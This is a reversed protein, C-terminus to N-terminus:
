SNQKHSLPTSSAQQTMSTEQPKNQPYFLTLEREITQKAQYLTSILAPTTNFQEPALAVRKKSFTKEDVYILNREDGNGPALYFKNSGAHTTIELTIFQGDATLDIKIDTSLHISRLINLILNNAHVGIKKPTPETKTDYTPNNYGLLYLNDKNDAYLQRPKTKLYYFESFTTYAFDKAKQIEKLQSHLSLKRLTVPEIKIFTSLASPRLSTMMIMESEPLPTVKNPQAAEQGLRIGGLLWAIIPLILSGTGALVGYTLSNTKIRTEKGARYAGYVIAVPPTIIMSVFGVVTGKLINKTSLNNKPRATTQKIANLKQESVQVKHEARSKNKEALIREKIAANPTVDSTGILANKEQAQAEALEIEVTKKARLHMALSKQAEELTLDNIVAAIMKETEVESNQTDIQTKIENTQLLDIYTQITLKYHHNIKNLEATLQQQTQNKLTSEANNHLKELERNLQAMKEQFALPLKKLHQNWIDDSASKFDLTPSIESKLLLEINSTKIAILTKSERYERYLNSIMIRSSEQLHTKLHGKELPIDNQYIDKLNETLTKDLIATKKTELGLKKAAIALKEYALSLENLYLKFFHEDQGVQFDIEYDYMADKFTKLQKDIKFPKQYNEELNKALFHLSKEIEALGSKQRHPILSMSITPKEDAITTASASPNLGLQAHLTKSLNELIKEDDIHKQQPSNSNNEIITKPTDEKKSLIETSPSPTKKKENLLNAMIKNYEKALKIRYKLLKAKITFTTKEYQTPHSRRLQNEAAERAVRPYQQIKQKIATTATQYENLLNNTKNKITTLYPTIAKLTEIEGRTKLADEVESKHEHLRKDLDSFLPILPAEAALMQLEKLQTKLATTKKFFTNEYDTLQLSRHFTLALQTYFTTEAERPENSFFRKFAVKTALAKNLDSESLLKPKIATKIKAYYNLLAKKIAENQQAHPLILSIIEKRLEGPSCTVRAALLLNEIAIMKPSIEFATLAAQIYAKEDDPPQQAKMQQLQAWLVQFTALYLPEKNTLAVILQDIIPLAQMQIIRNPHTKVENTFTHM